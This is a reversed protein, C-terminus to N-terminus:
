YRVDREQTVRIGDLEREVGQKSSSKELDDGGEQRVIVQSRTIEKLPVEHESLRRFPAAAGDEASGYSDPSKPKSSYGPSPKSASFFPLVRLLVPRAVPLCATCIAVTPELMSWIHPIPVAYSPDSPGVKTVYNLARLRLGSIICIWSGLGFLIYLGVKTKLPVQLKWVM